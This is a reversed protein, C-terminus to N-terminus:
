EYYRKKRDRSPKSSIVKNLSSVVSQSTNKTTDFSPNPHKSVIRNEPNIGYQYYFDEIMSVGTNAREAVRTISYGSDVILNRIALHRVSYPSFWDIERILKDTLRRKGDRDDMDAIYQKIKPKSRRLLSVVNASRWPTYEGEFKDYREYGGHYHSGGRKTRKRVPFVYDDPGTPFEHEQLFDVWSKFSAPYDYDSYYVLPKVQGRRQIGRSVKKGYRTTMTMYYADPRIDSQQLEFDKFQLMLLEQGARCVFNYLSILYFHMRRRAILAEVGEKKDRPRMNKNFRFYERIHGYTEKSITDRREPKQTDVLDWNRIWDTNKEIRGIKPPFRSHGSSYAWRLYSILNIQEVALTRLTPKKRATPFNDLHLRYDNLFKIYDRETINAVNTTGFYALYYMEFQRKLANVVYETSKQRRHLIYKPFLSGFNNSPELIIQQEEADRVQLWYRNARKLAEFYDTTKLTKKFYGVSNLRKIRVYWVGKVSGDIQYICAEGGTHELPTLDKYYAM